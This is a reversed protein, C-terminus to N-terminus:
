KRSIANFNSKAGPFKAGNSPPCNDPAPRLNDIFGNRLTLKKEGNAADFVERSLLSAVGKLKLLQVKEAVSWSPQIEPLYAFIM